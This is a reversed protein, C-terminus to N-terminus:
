PTNGPIPPHALLDRLKAEDYAANRRDRLLTTTSPPVTRTDDDSMVALSRCTWTAPSLDFVNMAHQCAALSPYTYGTAYPVPHLLSVM